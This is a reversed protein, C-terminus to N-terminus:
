DYLEDKHEKFSLLKDRYFEYQKQRAEIEAPLGSTLDNCIADFRDLISVIRKQEEVPPVAIVAKAINDNYLRPITGGESAKWPKLEYCYCLYSNLVISEDNDIWVINSDQFYAPKGDYVVTRGITGAASILVDGKKPFNYKSRYENFTEQSIYADAEKGFTGIKYFPVGSVTNTQSKLIRKCMCISGIDGLSIRVYGFVYQLLKILARSQEARSQEARSQEARSQEARSQEARSLITNGTEAFTLLKDRYYEYQKQRAEIEAPLGINLDSCIKEFNDLVNVIRNQVDLPPVPIKYALVKQFDLSDVTGGQKKTTRRINEGYAQLAHSVYRSSIGEKTVLIKIDQNVTTEFPIYTVPFTHRLIGSRTVIAVSGAPYVTMSAEDVAANTIHDITDTLIPQKVDKSSVWPITGSEWYKKEAMSPTKGGSWKGLDAVKTMTASIKTKDLLKERYFGYQTKRATLEATLEATLKTFNDLIRVIECQIEVPPVPLTIDVLADPTVEIVKTGHALKRKQAFFMQSHFYYVLYKANQHHHIIASHGSVAVPEDGLWALCKCVDEINESTVAMVIDNPQAMKQKKACEESIFTFTKDAFLGYKTYIQGYHICPVGETLFDKKQFNGGRSITAIEGLKKYEVGDPCLERIMEDLKSM